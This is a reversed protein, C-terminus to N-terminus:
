FSKDIDHSNVRFPSLSSIDFLPVLAEAELRRRSPGDQPELEMVGTVSLEDPNSPLTNFTGKWRILLTM